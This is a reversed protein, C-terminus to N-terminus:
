GILYGSFYSVGYEYLISPNNDYDFSVQVSDGAALHIETSMNVVFHMFQSETLVASSAVGCNIGHVYASNVLFSMGPHRLSQNAGKTNLARDCSFSYLGSVPATFASTGNYHNGINHDVGSFNLVRSGAVYPTPGGPNLSASFAPQYPTTVIGASDIRMREVNGAEFTAINDSLFVTKTADSYVGGWRTSGTGFNLFSSASGSLTLVGRGAAPNLITSTGIGVNGNIQDLTLVTGAADDTFTLNGTVSDREIDWYAAATAALRIGAGTTGNLIEINRSPSSTGIGLNEASADWFFKPTTGTDENFSVDGNTSINIRNKNSVGDNTAILLPGGGTQRIYSGGARQFDIDNGSLLTTISTGVTLNGNLDVAGDVVLEDATVSGAVDLDGNLTGGSLPLMNAAVFTKLSVVTVEDDVSLAVLFTVSNGNSASYDVVDTLLTGNVYVEVFGAVYSLGAKVTQGATALFSLKNYARQSLKGTRGLYSM